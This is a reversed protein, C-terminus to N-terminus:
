DDPFQWCRIKEVNDSGCNFCSVDAQSAVWEEDCERCHCFINYRDALKVQRQWQEILPDQHTM